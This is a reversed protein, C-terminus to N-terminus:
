RMFDAMERHGVSLAEDDDWSVTFRIQETDKARPRILLYGTNRRADFMFVWNAGPLRSHLTPVKGAAKAFHIERFILPVLPKKNDAATKTLLGALREDPLTRAEYRNSAVKAFHQEPLSIVLSHGRLHHTVPPLTDDPLAPPPVHMTPDGWLTFALATRLNAGTFKTDKGLRKEKLRAFCLLFNKAHRLAGGASQKEYALAEFYSLSLAGGSGSFTRSSSGLVGVAGRELFPLVKPRDLALCSQLFIISPWLPETWHHVEYDRILTSHHGEWLFLTQKPLSARVEARNAEDGFFSDVQFGRNKLEMATTRSFTELLPLSGGPNSVVLARHSAEPHQQWLCPRALMLAVIAPDDNFIRGTAFTIPEGNAPTLPETEIFEDKGALPNARREMPIAQPDGALVLADAGSTEPKALIDQALAKVNDGAENTLLLVGHKQLTIWPALKSMCGRLGNQDHPNAVVITNIKGRRTAHRIYSAQVAAEDHLRITRISLGKWFSVVDGVAYIEETQWDHLQRRLPGIDGGDAILLPAGLRRGPM